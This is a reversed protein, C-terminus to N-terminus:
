AHEFTRRLRARDPETQKMLWCNELYERGEETKRMRDIFADRFLMKFTICDMAMLMDFNMGTYDAM